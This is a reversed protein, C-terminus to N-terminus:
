CSSPACTGITGPLEASAKTPLRCPSPTPCRRCRGVTLPLPPAPQSDCEFIGQLAGRASAKIDVGGCFARGAGSLVVVRPFDAPLAELMTTPHQLSDFVAHLETLCEMSLANFAQPRNLTLFLIAGGSTAELSCQLTQWQRSAWM